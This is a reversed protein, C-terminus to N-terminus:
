AFTYFERIQGRSHQMVNTRHTRLEDRIKDLMPRKSERMVKKAMRKLKYLPMLDTNLHSKGGLITLYKGRLDLVKSKVFTSAPRNRLKQNYIFAFDRHVAVAGSALQLSGDELIQAKEEEETVEPYEYFDEIDDLLEETETGIRHHNMDMMHGRCAQLSAFQKDCYLCQHGETLKLALFSILGPLDTLYEIDPIFFSYKKAMYEVNDEITAHKSGDFLCYTEDIIPLSVASKGEQSKKLTKNKNSTGDRKKLHSSGRDTKSSDAMMKIQDLRELWTEEEIPDLGVVRRKTNYLHFETKYHERQEVPTQFYVACSNCPLMEVADLEQDAM